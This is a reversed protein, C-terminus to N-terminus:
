LVRWTYPNQQYMKHLLPTKVKTLKDFFQAHSLLQEITVQPDQVAALFRLERLMYPLLAVEISYYGCDGAGPNDAKIDRSEM